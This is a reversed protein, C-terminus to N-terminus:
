YRGVEMEDNRTGLLQYVGMAFKGTPPSVTGEFLTQWPAVPIPTGDVGSNNSSINEWIFRVSADGLAFM